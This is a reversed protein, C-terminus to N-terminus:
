SDGNLVLDLQPFPIAVQALQGALTTLSMYLIVSDQSVDLGLISVSQLQSMYDYTPGNLIAQTQSVASNIENTLEATFVTDNAIVNANITLPGFQTGQSPYIINSGQTTFLIKLFIQVVKQIGTISKPDDGIGFTIQGQPFGDPFEVLLLDYTGGTELNTPTGLRDTYTTAM